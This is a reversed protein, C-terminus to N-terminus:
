HETRRAALCDFVVVRIMSWVINYFGYIAGGLIFNPSWTFTWEQWDAVGLGHPQKVRLGLAAAFGAIGVIIWLYKQWWELGRKGCVAPQWLYICNLASVIAIVVIGASQKLGTAWALGIVISTLLQVAVIGYDRVDYNSFPLM